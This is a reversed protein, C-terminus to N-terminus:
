IDFGPSVVVHAVTGLGVICSCNRPNECTTSSAGAVVAVRRDQHTWSSRPYIDRSGGCVCSRERVWVDCIGACRGKGM